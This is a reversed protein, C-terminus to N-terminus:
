NTEATLRAAEKSRWKAEARAREASTALVLTKCGCNIHIPGHTLNIRALISPNIPPMDFPSM